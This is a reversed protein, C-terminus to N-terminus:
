EWVLGARLAAVNVSVIFDALSSKCRLLDGASLLEVLRADIEALVVPLRGGYAHRLEDPQDDRHFTEFSVPLSQRWAKWEPRERVLRHTIDCLACHRRGFRAGVFYRLEGRVSGDADYVGVLRRIVRAAETSGNVM